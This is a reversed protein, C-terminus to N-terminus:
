LYVAIIITKSDDDIITITACSPEVAEAGVSQLVQADPLCITFSEIEEGRRDNNLQTRIPLRTINRTFM